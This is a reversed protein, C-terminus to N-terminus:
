WSERHTSGQFGTARDGEAEGTQGRSRGAGGTGPETTGTKRPVQFSREAEIESM